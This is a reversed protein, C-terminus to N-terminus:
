AVEGVAAADFVLFAWTASDGLALLPACFSM